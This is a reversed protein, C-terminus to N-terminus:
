FKGSQPLQFCHVRQNSGIFNRGKLPAHNFGLFAELSGLRPNISNTQNERGLIEEILEVFDPCAARVFRHLGNSYDKFHVEYMQLKLHKFTKELGLEDSASPM